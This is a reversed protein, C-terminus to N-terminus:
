ARQRFRTPSHRGDKKAGHPYQKKMTQHGRGDLTGRRHQKANGFRLRNLLPGRRTRGGSRIDIRERDIRNQFLDRLNWIKLLVQGLRGQRNGRGSVFIEDIQGGRQPQRLRVVGANGDAPLRNLLGEGLLKLRLRHDQGCQPGADIIVQVIAHQLRGRSFDAVHVLAGQIKAASRPGEGGLGHGIRGHLEETLQAIRAERGQRCPLLHAGVLSTGIGDGIDDQEIDDASKEVQDPGLTVQGGEQLRFLFHVQDHLRRRRKGLASLAAIGVGAAGAGLGEEQMGPLLGGLLAHGHGGGVQRAQEM